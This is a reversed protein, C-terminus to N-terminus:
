AVNRAQGVTVVKAFPLHGHEAYRSGLVLDAPLAPDFGVFIKIPHSPHIEASEASATAAILAGAVFCSRIWRCRGM